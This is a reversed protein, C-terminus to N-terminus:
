ALRWKERWTRPAIAQGAARLNTLTATCVRYPWGTIEVFERLSLPGLALLQRAVYARTM